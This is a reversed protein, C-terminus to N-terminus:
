RGTSERRVKGESCGARAGRILRRAGMDDPKDDARQDQLRLNSLKVPHGALPAGPFWLLAAPSKSSQTTACRKPPPPYSQISPNSQPVQCQRVHSFFSKHKLKITATTSHPLPTVKSTITHSHHSPKMHHSPRPNIFQHPLAGYFALAAQGIQTKRATSFHHTLRKIISNIELITASYQPQM